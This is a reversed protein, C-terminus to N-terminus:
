SRSPKARLSTGKVDSTVFSDMQGDFWSVSREASRGEYIELGEVGMELARAIWKQKNM